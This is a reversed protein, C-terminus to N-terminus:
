GCESCFECIGDGNLSFAIDGCDVCEYKSCDDCYWDDCEEDCHNCYPM